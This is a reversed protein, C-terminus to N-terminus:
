LIAKKRLVTLESVLKGLETAVEGPEQTHMRTRKRMHQCTAPGLGDQVSLAM